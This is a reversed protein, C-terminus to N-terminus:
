KPCTIAVSYLTGGNHVRITYCSGNEAKLIVGTSSTQCYFAGSTATFTGQYVTVSSSVHVDKWKKAASGLDYTNTNQPTVDNLESSDEGGHKHTDLLFYIEEFNRNVSPQDKIKYPPQDGCFINGTLFFLISVFLYNFKEM